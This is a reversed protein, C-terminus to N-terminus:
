TTADVFREAEARASLDGEEIRRKLDPRANLVARLQAPLYDPPLPPNLDIYNRLEELLGADKEDLRKKLDPRANLISRFQGSPHEPHSTWALIADRATEGPFIIQALAVQAINETRLIKEASNEESDPNKEVDKKLDAEKENM